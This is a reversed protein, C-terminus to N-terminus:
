HWPLATQQGAPHDHIRWAREPARARGSPQHIHSGRHGEPESGLPRLIFPGRSGSRRKGPQTVSGRRNSSFAPKRALYLCGREPRSVRDNWSNEHGPTRVTRSAQFLLLLSDPLIGARRCNGGELWNGPRCTCRRAALNPSKRRRGRMRTGVLGQSKRIEQRGCGKRRAKQGQGEQRRGNEVAGSGAEIKTLLLTDVPGHSPMAAIQWPIRNGTAAM